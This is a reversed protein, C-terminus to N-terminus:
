GNEGELLYKSLGIIKQLPKKIIMSNIMALWIVEKEAYSMVTLDDYVLIRCYRAEGKKRLERIKEDFKEKDETRYIPSTGTTGEARWKNIMYQHKM